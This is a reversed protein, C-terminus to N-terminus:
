VFPLELLLFFHLIVSHQRPSPTWRHIDPARATTVHDNDSRILDWSCSLIQEQVSFINVSLHYFSLELNHCCTIMYQQSVFLSNYFFVILTRRVTTNLRYSMLESEGDPPIFSITRDNEFRSLRVCQHFKVDELEVTKSKEGLLVCVFMFICVGFYVFSSQSGLRVAEPFDLDPGYHCFSKEGRGHLARGFADAM